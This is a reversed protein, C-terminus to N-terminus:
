RCYFVAFISGRQARQGGNQFRPGDLRYGEHLASVLRAVGALAPRQCNFSGRPHRQSPGKQFSLSQHPYRYGEMARDFSPFPLWELERDGDEVVALLATGAAMAQFWRDGSFTDGRLLLTYQDYNSQEYADMAEETHMMYQACRDVDRPSECPKVDKTFNETQTQLLPNAVGVFCSNPIMPGGPVRSPAIAVM